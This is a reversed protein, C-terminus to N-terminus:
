VVTGILIPHLKTKPFKSRRQGKYRFQYYKNKDLQFIRKGAIDDDIAATIKSLSPEIAAMEGDLVAYRSSRGPHQCQAQM